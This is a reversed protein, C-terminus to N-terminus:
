GSSSEAKRERAAEEDVRGEGETKGGGSCTRAEVEEEAEETDEQVM